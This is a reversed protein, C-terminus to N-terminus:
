VRGNALHYPHFYATLQAAKSNQWSRRWSEKNPRRDGTGGALGFPLSIGVNGCAVRKKAQAGPCNEWAAVFAASHAQRKYVDLHTYSVPKISPM